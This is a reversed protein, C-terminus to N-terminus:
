CCVTHMGRDHEDTNCCGDRYWGTLPDVSCPELPHGHVNLSPEM